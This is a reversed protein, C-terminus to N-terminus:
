AAVRRGTVWSSVDADLMIPDYDVWPQMAAVPLGLDQAKCWLLYARWESALGHGRMDVPLARLDDVAWVHARIFRAGKPIFADPDPRSKAQVVEISRRAVGNGPEVHYTVVVYTHVTAAALIQQVAFGAAQALGPFARALSGQEMQRAAIM